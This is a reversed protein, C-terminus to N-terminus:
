SCGLSDRTSVGTKSNVGAAKACLQKVQAGDLFAYSFDAGTIDANDFISGFMIVEVFVADSLDAGTFNVQDTMGYSFDAGHMNTQTMVSGSFVAGRLDAEAFKALELNANTFEATQLNQGSFDKGRLEANTYSLPLPYYGRQAQAPLPIYWLIFALFLAAITRLYSPRSFRANFYYTILLLSCTVLLLSHIM